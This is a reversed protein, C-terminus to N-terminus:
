QAAGVLVRAVEQFVHDEVREFVIDEYTANTDDPLLHVTFRDDIFDPLDMLKVDGSLEVFCYRTM